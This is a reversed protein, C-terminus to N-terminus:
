AWVGRGVLDDIERLLRALSPAAGAATDPRWTTEAYESVLATYEPGVRRPSGKPPVIGRRISASSSHRCLGVLALKPDVLGEPGDPVRARAVRFFAAFAQADALLWADLARVAIRLALAAAQEAPPLLARRLTAACDGGDQDLDRVALWPAHRAAQNYKPLRRDFEQKGSTVKVRRPDVHLGRTRLVATM